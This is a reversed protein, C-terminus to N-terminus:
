RLICCLITLRPTQCSFNAADDIDGSGNNTLAGNFTIDDQTGLALTGNNIVSGNFLLTSGQANGLTGNNTFSGNFVLTGETSGLAPSNHIVSGQFTGSGSVTGTRSIRISSRRTKEKWWM